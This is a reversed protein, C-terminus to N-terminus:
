IGKTTLNGGVQTCACLDQSSRGCSFRSRVYIYGGFTIKACIEYMYNWFWLLEPLIYCVFKLFNCSVNGTTVRELCTGVGDKLRGKDERM